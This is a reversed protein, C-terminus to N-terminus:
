LDRPRGWRGNRKKEEIEIARIDMLRDLEDWWKCYDGWWLSDETDEQSDKHVM